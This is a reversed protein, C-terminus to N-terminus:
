NIQCVTCTHNRLLLIKRSKVIYIKIGGDHGARVGPTKIEVLKFSWLKSEHCNQSIQNVLRSFITSCGTRNIIDYYCKIGEEQFAVQEKM